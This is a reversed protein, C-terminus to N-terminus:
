ASAPAPLAAPPANWGAVGATAAPDFLLPQFPTGPSPLLAAAADGATLLRRVTPGADAAGVDIVQPLGPCTIFYRARKLVVGIKALHEFRIAGFRRSSVIRKASQPGIGPVRLLTGLEARNLDVPFFHPNRLAWASKPDLQEDLQPNREDLIEGATFGYFRMLWDAQYLRHERRLPPVPLAPLQRTDGVPIYASYYVRKLNFHQYLSSSLHLIQMDSEPSAGVIMQTSQGAPSFRPIRRTKKREERNEEISKGILGMPKLIAEKNKEPAYKRLADGSPLEINVSLRDAYLGARRILDPSAGPIAKLHIYGGFRHETRLKKAVLIMREMTADPGGSVGSSLFLGEIYNRRYFDVTLDVVEQVTFAARPVDNSRRNSCYACDYECFNTLLLKLLSICRGDDAWSHCIGCASTNGLGGAPAERRSGSSACSADYRAAAGLIEIKQLLDM